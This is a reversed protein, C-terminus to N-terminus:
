ITELEIKANAIQTNVYTKVDAATTLSNADTSADTITKTTIKVTYKSDNGM